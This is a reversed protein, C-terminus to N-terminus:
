KAFNKRNPKVNINKVYNLSAGKVDKRRRLKMLLTHESKTDSHLLVNISNNNMSLVEYIFAVKADLSEAVSEVYARHKGQEGGESEKALSESTVPLDPFPNRFVVIVDGPVSVAEAASSLPLSAALVLLLSFYIIRRM